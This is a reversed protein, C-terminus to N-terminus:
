LMLQFISEQAAGERHAGDIHGRKTHFQASHNDGGERGGGGKEGKVRRAIAQSWRVNVLLLNSQALTLATTASQATRRVKPVKTNPFLTTYLM